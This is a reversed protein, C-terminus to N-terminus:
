EDCGQCVCTGTLHSYLKPPPGFESCSELLTLILHSSCLLPGLAVSQMEADGLPGLSPSPAACLGQTRMRLNMRARCLPGWSLTWIRAPDRSPTWGGGLVLELCFDPSSAVALSKGPRSFHPTPHLLTRTHRSRTNNERHNRRALREDGRRTGVGGKRWRERASQASEAQRRKRDIPAM